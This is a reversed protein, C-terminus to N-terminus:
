NLNRRVQLLNAGGVGMQLREASLFSGSEAFVSRPRIVTKHSFPSLPDRRSRSQACPHRGAALRFLMGPAGPGLQGAPDALLPGAPVPGECNIYPPHVWRQSDWRDAAIRGPCTTSLLRARWYATGKGPGPCTRNSDLTWPRFDDARLGSKPSRSKPGFGPVPCTTEDLM